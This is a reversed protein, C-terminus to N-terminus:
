SGGCPAIQWYKEVYSRFRGLYKKTECVYNLLGLFDICDLTETNVLLSFSLTLCGSRIIDVLKAYSDFLYSLLIMKWLYNMNGLSHTVGSLYDSDAGRIMSELEPIIEM